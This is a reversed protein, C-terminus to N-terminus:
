TATEIPRGSLAETPSMTVTLLISCCSVSSSMALPVAVTFISAGNSPCVSSTVALRVSMAPLWDVATVILAVRSM